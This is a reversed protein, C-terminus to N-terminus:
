IALCCREQAEAVSDGLPGSTDIRHAGSWAGDADSIAEAIRPTADSTSNRRGAIREEAVDLSVTCALEVTPCSNQDAVDHARQRHREDRWTGDLIVSQGAALLASARHLVTDYVAAV